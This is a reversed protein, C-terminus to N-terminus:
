NVYRPLIQPFVDSERLPRWGNVAPVTVNIPSVVDNYRIRAPPYYWSRTPQYPHYGWSRTRCFGCRCEGFGWQFSKILEQNRRYRVLDRTERDDFEVFSLETVRDNIVRHHRLLQQEYLNYQVVIEALVGCLFSELEVVTPNVRCSVVQTEPPPHEYLRLM